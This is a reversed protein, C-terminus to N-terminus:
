SEYVIVGYVISASLDVAATVEVGARSEAMIKPATLSGDWFYNRTKDSSGEIIVGRFEMARVRGVGSGGATSAVVQAFTDGSTAYSNSMTVTFPVLTIKGKAMGNVESLAGGLVGLPTSTNGM